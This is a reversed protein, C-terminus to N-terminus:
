DPLLWQERGENFQSKRFGSPHSQGTSSDHSEELIAPMLFPLKRVVAVTASSVGM